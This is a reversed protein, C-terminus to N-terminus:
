KKKSVKKKEKAYVLTIKEGTTVEYLKYKIKAENTLFGKTEHIVQKGTATDTFVFDAIYTCIKEGEVILPIRVQERLDKIKGAKALMYLKVAHEKELKSAYVIGNFTREAKPAVGFKNKTTRYGKGWAM